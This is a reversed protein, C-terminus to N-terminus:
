SKILMELIRINERLNQDTRMKEEIKRCSHLVTTHNRNDFQAGIEPLSMTTLHRCLFMAIQRASVINKLRKPGILDGLRIHFFAAVKKQILSANVTTSSPHLLDPLAQQCIEISPEQGKFAAAALVQKLAGELERVNSKVKEAILRAVKENLKINRDAAKKLVINERLELEPPSLYTTLGHSFRSILRQPMENIQAPAKDCTIVIIKERDYLHNFLYFLEEQTRKKDGGIYQIDDIVLVDLQNFRENFREQHNFRFASVVQGMFDRASIYLVKHNKNKAEYTNCIAQALHTKGLGTSGYLFLPNAYGRDGSALAHAAMLAIENARGPIFNDFTLDRRLNTQRSVTAPPPKAIAPTTPSKEQTKRATYHIQVNDNFHESAM